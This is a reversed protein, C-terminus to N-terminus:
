MHVSTIDHDGLVRDELLVGDGVEGGVGGGLAVLVRVGPDHEGVPPVAVREEVALVHDTLDFGPRM